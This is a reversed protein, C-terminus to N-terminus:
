SQSLCVPLTVLVPINTAQEEEAKGSAVLLLEKEHATPKLYLRREKLIQSSSQSTLVVDVEMSIHNEYRVRVPCSEEKAKTMEISPQPIGSSVQSFPHHPLPKLPIM